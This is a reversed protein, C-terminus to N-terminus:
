LWDSIWMIKRERIAKSEEEKKTNYKEQLMRDASANNSFFCGYM